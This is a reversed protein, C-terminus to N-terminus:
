FTAVANGELVIGIAVTNFEINAQPGCVHHVSFEQFGTQYFTGYALKQGQSVKREKFEYKLM